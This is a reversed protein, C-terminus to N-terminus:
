FEELTKEFLDNPNIGLRECGKKADYTLKSLGTDIFVLKLYWNM